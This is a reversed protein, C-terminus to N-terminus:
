YNKEMFKKAEDLYSSAAYETSLRNFMERGKAKNGSLMYAKGLYLLAEDNQPSAPFRTLVGELRNIAAQYKETRLYFRGVNVEYRVQMGTAEDIRAQAEKAYDSGPYTKIFLTLTTVANRVPTQDTDVGTIQKFHCMGLRFLAYSAKEHNPHLKRFEEYAAAAEIYSDKEYLADAIKIEAQTTLEPTFYSEKVKKWLTVAEDYNRDSYANEGDKFYEVASKVQPTSACGALSFLMLLAIAPKISMHV